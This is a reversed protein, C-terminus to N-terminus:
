SVVGPVLCGPLIRCPPASHLPMIIHAPNPPAIQPVSALPRFAQAPSRPATQAAKTARFTVTALPASASRALPALYSQPALAAETIAHTPPICLLGTAPVDREKQKPSLGSPLGVSSYRMAQPEVQHCDYEEPVNVYLDLLSGQLDNACRTVELMKSKMEELAEGHGRSTKGRVRSMENSREQIRAFVKNGHKLLQLVDSKPVASVDDKWRDVAMRAPAVAFRSSPDTDEQDGFSPLKPIDIEGSKESCLVPLWTQAQPEITRSSLSLCDTNEEDAHNVGKGFVFDGLFVRPERCIDHRTAPFHQSQGHFQKSLAGALGQGVSRLQLGLSDIEDFVQKARANMAELAIRQTNELQTDIELMLTKGLVDITACLEAVESSGARVGRLEQLERELAGLRAECDETKEQRRTLEEVIALLEQVENSTQMRAAFEKELANLIEDRVSQVEIAVASRVCTPKHQM